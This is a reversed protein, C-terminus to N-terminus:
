RLGKGFVISLFYLTIPLEEILFPMTGNRRLRQNEHEDDDTDHCRQDQKVCGILEPHKAAFRPFRVLFLFSPPTFFGQAWHRTLEIDRLM